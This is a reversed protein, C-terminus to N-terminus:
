SSVRGAMIEASAQGVGEPSGREKLPSGTGQPDLPQARTRRRGRQGGLGLGAPGQSLCSECMGGTTEDEGTWFCGWRDRLAGEEQSGCLMVVATMLM